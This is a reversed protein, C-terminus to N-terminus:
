DIPVRERLLEFFNLVVNIEVPESNQSEAGEPQIFVFGEVRDRVVYDFLPARYTINPADQRIQVDNFSTIIQLRGPTVTTASYQLPIVGLGPTGDEVAVFFVRGPDPPWIPLLGSVTTLAKEAGRSAPYPRLFIQGPIAPSHLYAVWAGDRSARAHLDLDTSAAFPEAPGGAALDFALVDPTGGVGTDTYLLIDGPLVDTPTLMETGELVLTEETSGDAAKRWISRGTGGRNSSFLIESGDPTWVPSFNESGAYTLQEATATELDIVFIHVGQVDASGVEVAIKSGDPSVRLGGYDRLDSVLPSVAGNMDIFILRFELGDGTEVGPVYILTGNAAIAYAAVGGSSRSSSIGQMVPVAEGRVAASEPDFGVAFLTGSREFVLHGTEAYRGFAGDDIVLKREGTTSHEAIIEANGWSGAAASILIWDSGPLGEPYDLDFYDARDAFLEPVGGLASVRSLDYTGSQGFYIRGREDWAGVLGRAAPVSAIVRPAEGAFGVAKLETPTFFAVEDGDPSFFPSNGGETGTIPTLELQDMRRTYLRNDAALVIRSGDPSLALVPSASIDQVNDLSISFRTIADNRAPWLVVAVLATAVISVLATAAQVIARKGRPATAAALAGAGPLESEFRGELALRVDRIDAIRKRPDKQLCLRITHRVAPSIANPISSLDTDRDLVRALTLMVDEGGFAPQGTLMEFLLCGFAWIDTREDVFRGRAQEPSMYAATGLIIGTQTMAPTTLVPSGGSIIRPDLPKSIGFDLVKVTGDTRVKVNAPKLDRHVISKEHAAELAAIVQLAISMAEDPPIPGQRLREALTPGEVLEMVIATQGEDQELGYVQAINPHNLAALIEAERKFRAVRDQDEVFAKPLLKLAVDRKLTTDRARFVEGMGGAGISAAIEYTGFRQGPSVSM